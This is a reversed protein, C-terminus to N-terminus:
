AAYFVRTDIDIEIRHDGRSHRDAGRQGGHEVHHNTIHPQRPDNAIVQDFDRRRVSGVFPQEHM